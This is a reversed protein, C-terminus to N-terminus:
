LIAGPRGGPGAHGTCEFITTALALSIAEEPM